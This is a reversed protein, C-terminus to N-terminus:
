LVFLVDGHKLNDGHGHGSGNIRDRLQTEEICGWLLVDNAVTNTCRSSLEQGEGGDGTRLPTAEDVKAQLCIEVVLLM